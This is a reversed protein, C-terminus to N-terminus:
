RSAGLSRVEDGSMKVSWDKGNPSEAQEFHIRNKGTFVNTTRYFTTKGGGQDWRSSFVWRSGSIELDALGSARGEPNINQTHFLGPTSTPIFVLLAGQQGNITQSCAFFKGLLACQNKLEDPKAGQAMDSRTIRWTGEYLRLSAYDPAPTAAASSLERSLFVLALLLWTRM